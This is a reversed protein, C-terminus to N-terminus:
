KDKAKQTGIAETFWRVEDIFGKARKEYSPDKPNGDEDFSDQVRSVPLSAPIPFAGMGLRLQALYNLGGFGGASVTVIAIPKRRYEPLIIVLPTQHVRIKGVIQSWVHLSMLTDQWEVLPLEPLSETKM